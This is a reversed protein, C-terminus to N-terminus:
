FRYSVQVGIINANSNYTGRVIGKTPDTDNNIDADRVFLHAYGIDITGRESFHYQAGISAWIRNNDPLSTLRYTESRIPSQDWAVGAKLTWAQNMRYRAGLALRWTDRFRLTLDDSPLPRTNEINLSQLSSWGTWSIDALVQWQSNIDHALSLVATDPLTVSTSAAVRALSRGGATDLKTHGDADIKVRSRYSLGVRTAPTIDYLLGANWGWGDGRLNAQAGLDPTGLPLRMAAAPVARRYEADLYMWNLGAGLSLRDSVKYAVSPNINVSQIEFKRSHYRGIWNDDYETMLGFPAGVGLGAFWQPSLQWSGYLNPVVGASGADGGNNAGLPMGGPGRSGNNDFKFSPRIVNFGGSVNVGELKTMGAPNYYITSADDAVAASGAYANGLGSANQELLQFGAAHAGGAFLGSILVSVVRLTASTKLDKM